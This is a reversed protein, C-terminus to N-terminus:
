KHAMVADSSYRSAEKKELMKKIFEECMPHVRKPIKVEKARIDAEDRFPFRGSVLGYMVVGVAWVDVKVGYNKDFFEPAWFIKTGVSATLREDQSVNQATGFDTLVIRTDPDTM